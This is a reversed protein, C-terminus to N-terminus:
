VHMLDQNLQALKTYLESPDNMDWGWVKFAYAFSLLYRHENKLFSNEDIDHLLQKLEPLITNELQDVTSEGEIGMKRHQLEYECLAILDLIKERFGLKNM